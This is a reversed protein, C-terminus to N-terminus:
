SLGMLHSGQDGSVYIGNIDPRLHSSLALGM